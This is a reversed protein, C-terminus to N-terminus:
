LVAETKEKPKHSCLMHYRLEGVLSQVKLTQIPFQFDGLRTWSAAVGHVAWHISNELSGGSGPILGLDGVTKVLQAVLSAMQIPLHVRLCQVVVPSGQAHSKFEERGTVRSLLWQGAHRGISPTGFHRSHSRRSHLFVSARQGATRRM